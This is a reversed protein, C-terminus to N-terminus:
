HVRLLFIQNHPEFVRSFFFLAVVFFRIQQKQKNKKKGARSNWKTWRGWNEACIVTSYIWTTRTQKNWETKGWATRLVTWILSPSHRWLLRLCVSHFTFLVFYLISVSLHLCLFLACVCVCVRFALSGNVTSQSCHCTCVCAFGYTLLVCIETMHGGGCVNGWIAYLCLPTMCGKKTSPVEQADGNRGKTLPERHRAPNKECMHIGPHEDAAGRSTFLNGTVPAGAGPAACQVYKGQSVGVWVCKYHRVFQRRKKNQCRWVSIRAYKANITASSEWSTSLSLSQCSSQDVSNWHNRETNLAIM